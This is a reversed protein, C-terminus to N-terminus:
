AAAQLSDENKVGSHIRRGIYIWGVISVLTLLCGLAKFSLVARNSAAESAEFIVAAGAFPLRTFVGLIEKHESTDQYELWGQNSATAFMKLILPNKALSERHQAREPEPHVLATGFRDVIYARFDKTDKLISQTDSADIVAVVSTKIGKITAPNIIVLVPHEAGLTSAYLQEQVPGNNLVDNRLTNMLETFHKSELKHEILYAANEAKCSFTFDDKKWDLTGAALFPSKPNSISEPKLADEVALQAVLASSKIMQMFSAAASESSRVSEIHTLRKQESQFFYPGFFILSTGLTALLLAPGIIMADSFRKDM